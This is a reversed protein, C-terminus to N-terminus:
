MRAGSHGTTDRLKSYPCPNVPLIGSKILRNSTHQPHPQDTQDNRARLHLRTRYSRRM